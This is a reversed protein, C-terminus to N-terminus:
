RIVSIGKKRNISNLRMRANVVETISNGLAQKDVNISTEVTAPATLIATLLDIIKDLKEGLSGTNVTTPQINDRAAVIAATKGLLEYSRSSKVASLPIAMEPGAEGFISPQNAIGGNAYRAHGTPGWGAGFHIDNRWNSDNFLALLQDWGHYINGHGRVKYANFTRTKYQLLGRAPGSGDGDPDAGPQVASPNGRSEGAIMSIIKRIETPTVSTHMTEAAKKIDEGWRDAGTGNPDKEDGGLGFLDGIKSIFSFFGKLPKM